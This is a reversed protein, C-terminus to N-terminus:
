HAENAGRLIAGTQEPTAVERGCQQALETAAVVIEENTPTGPGAYDELGVRLHGGRELVIKTVDAKLLDGGPLAVSWPWTTAELLELYAELATLTAPLGMLTGPAGLFIKIQGGQPARGGNLYPIVTRVFSPDFISISVPVELELCTRFMMDIDALTNIYVVESPAPVEGPMAFGINVSGPDVIGMTLVGADAIARLHGYRKEVTTHAGGGTMTPYLFAGPEAELVRSWAEIYPRPDHEATVMDIVPDDTHNHIVTAGASLCRIADEAIAAPTRPVNPNRAPTTAGNVAAEIILPPSDSM